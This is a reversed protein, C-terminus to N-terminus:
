SEKHLNAASNHHMLQRPTQNQHPFTDFEVAVMSNRHAFSDLNTQREGASGEEVGGRVVSEAGEPAARLSGPEMSSKRWSSGGVGNGLQDYEDSVEEEDDDYDDRDDYSSLASGFGDSDGDSDDWRSRHGFPHAHSQMLADIDRPAANRAAWAARARRLVSENYMYIMAYLFGQLGQTMVHLLMLAFSARQPHALQWFRNLLSGSRSIVFVILYLSARFAWGATQKAFQLRTTPQRVFAARPQEEVSSGGVVVAHYKRYVTVTIAIYVGLNLLVFLLLPIYFVVMRWVGPEVWCWLDGAHLETQLQKAAWLVSVSALAAGWAIAHYTMSFGRASRSYASSSSNNTSSNSTNNAYNPNNNNNSSNPAIITLYLQHGIFSVWFFSAFSFFQNGVAEFLCWGSSHQGLSLAFLPVFLTCVSLWLVPENWDRRARRFFTHLLLVAISSLVSVAGLAKSLVRLGHIQSDSLGFGGHDMGCCEREVCLLGLWDV